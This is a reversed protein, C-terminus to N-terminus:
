DFAAVKGSQIFYGKLEKTIILKKNHVRRTASSAQQQNM